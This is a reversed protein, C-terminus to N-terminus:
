EFDTEPHQEPDCRAGLDGVGVFRLQRSALRLVDGSALREPRTIRRENLFTGNRSATDHLECGGWAHALIVCHRRSVAFEDFIVDNDPLRGLTNLGPRLAYRDGTQEDVLFFRPGPLLDDPRVPLLSDGEALLDGARERVLTVWGRAGLLSERARRYQQRRPRLEFHASDLRPDV